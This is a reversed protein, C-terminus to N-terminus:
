VAELGRALLDWVILARRYTSPVARYGPAESSCGSRRAPQTARRSQSSGKAAQLSGSRAPIGRRVKGLRRVGAAARRRPDGFRSVLLPRQMPVATAETGTMAVRGQPVGLLVYEADNAVVDLRSILLHGTM